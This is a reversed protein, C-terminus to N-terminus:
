LGEARLREKVRERGEVRMTEIGAMAWGPLYDVVASAAVLGKGAWWLLGKGTFTQLGGHALLCILAWGRWGIGLHPWGNMYVSYISGCILATALLTLLLRISGGPQSKDM